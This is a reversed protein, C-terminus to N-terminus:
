MSLSMPVSLFNYLVVQNDLLSVLLNTVESMYGRQRLPVAGSRKYLIFIGKNCYKLANCCYYHTFRDWKPLINEFKSCFKAFVCQLRHADFKKQCAEIYNYITIRMGIRALHLTLPHGFLNKVALNKHWNQPNIWQRCFTSNQGNSYLLTEASTQGKILSSLPGFTAQFM